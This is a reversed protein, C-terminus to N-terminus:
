EMAELELVRKEPITQAGCNWNYAVQLNIGLEKAARKVTWGRRQIAARWRILKESKTM